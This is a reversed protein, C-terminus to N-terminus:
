LERSVGCVVHTRAHTLLTTDGNADLEGFADKLAKQGLHESIPKGHNMLKAFDQLGMPIEESAPGVASAESADLHSRPPTAGYHRMESKIREFLDFRAREAAAEADRPQQRPTSGGTDASIRGLDTRETLQTRETLEAEPEHGDSSTKPRTKEPTKVRGSVYGQTQRPM